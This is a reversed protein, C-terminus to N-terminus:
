WKQSPLSKVWKSYNFAYDYVVPTQVAFLTAPAQQSMVNHQSLVNCGKCYVQGIPRKKWFARTSYMPTQVSVLLMLSLDQEMIKTSTIKRCTKFYIHSLNIHTQWIRSFSRITWLFNKIKNFNGKHCFTLDNCLSLFRRPYLIPRHVKVILLLVM